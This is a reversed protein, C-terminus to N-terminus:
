HYAGYHVSAAKDFRNLAVQVTQIITEVRLSGNHVQGHLKKIVTDTLDGADSIAASRHKLSGYLSLFLKDRNFPSIHGKANRISWALGFDSSELTTFVATCRSCHRRRWTRNSRKQLRSNIIHTLEGCYVCVM